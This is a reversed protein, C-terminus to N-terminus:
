RGKKGLDRMAEKKEKIERMLEAHRKADEDDKGKEFRSM